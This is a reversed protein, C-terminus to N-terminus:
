GSCTVALYPEEADGCEESNWGIGGDFSSSASEGTKIGISAIGDGSRQSELYSILNASTYEHWLNTSYSHSSILNGMSPQNNWTMSMEDWSDGMEYFGWDCNNPDELTFTLYMNLGANEIICWPPLQSLDFKIYGRKPSYQNNYTEIYEHVGYNTDPYSEMTTTDDIAYLNVTTGCKNERALWALANRVIGDGDTTLKSADTDDLGFWFYRKVGDEGAVGSPRSSDAGFVFTSFSTLYSTYRIYGMNISSDYVTVIGSYGSAVIHTDDVVEITSSSVSSVGDNSFYGLWYGARDYANNIELLPLGDDYAQRFAKSTYRFDEGVSWWTAVMVDHDMLEEYTYYDAFRSTVSHGYSSLKSIWSSEENCDSSVCLVAINLSKSTDLGGLKCCVDEVDSVDTYFAYEDPCDSDDPYGCDIDCFSDSLTLSGPECTGNEGMAGLPTNCMVGCVFESRVNADFTKSHCISASPEFFGIPIKCSGGICVEKPSCDNNTSCVSSTLFIHNSGGDIVESGLKSFSEAIVTDTSSAIQVTLPMSGTNDANISFSIYSVETQESGMLASMTPVSSMIPRGMRDYYMVSMGPQSTDTKTQMFLVVLVVAIVGYILLNNDKKRAM